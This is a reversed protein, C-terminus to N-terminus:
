YVHLERREKLQKININVLIVFNVVKQLLIQIELFFPFLSNLKTMM